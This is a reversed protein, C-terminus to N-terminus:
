KGGKGRRAVRRVKTPSTQSSFQTCASKPHTAPLVAASRHQLEAADLKESAAVASSRIDTPLHAKEKGGSQGSAKGFLSLVREANRQSAESQEKTSRAVPPEQAPAPFYKLLPRALYHVDGLTPPRHERLLRRVRWETEAIATQVAQDTEPTVKHGGARQLSSAPPRSACAPSPIGSATRDPSHRKGM